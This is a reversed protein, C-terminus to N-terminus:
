EIREYTADHINPKQLLLLLSLLTETTTSSIRTWTHAQTFPSFAHALWHIHTFTNTQEDTQKNTRHALTPICVVVYPRTAKERREEDYDHGFWVAARILRMMRLCWRCMTVYRRRNPLTDWICEYPFDFVLVTICRQKAAACRKSRLFLAFTKMFIFHFFKTALSFSNLINILRKLYKAQPPNITSPNRLFKKKKFYVHM